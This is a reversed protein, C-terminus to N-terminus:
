YQYKCLYVERCNFSMDRIVNDTSESCKKLETIKNAPLDDSIFRKDLKPVHQCPKM